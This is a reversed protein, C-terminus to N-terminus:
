VHQSQAKQNKVSVFEVFDGRVQPGIERYSNFADVLATDIDLVIAWGVTLVSCGCNCGDRGM